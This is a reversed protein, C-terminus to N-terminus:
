TLDFFTEQSLKIKSFDVKIKTKQQKKDHIFLFFLCESYKILIASIKLVARTGSEDFNKYYKSYM